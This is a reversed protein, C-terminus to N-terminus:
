LELIYMSDNEYVIHGTMKKKPPSYTIIRSGQYNPKWETKEGNEILKYSVLYNVGRKKILRQADRNDDFVDMILNLENEVHDFGKSDVYRYCEYYVQRESLASTYCTIQGKPGLVKNSLLVADEPLNQKAWLLGELEGKTLYDASPSVSYEKQGIINNIGNYSIKIFGFPSFAVFLFSLAVVCKLVFSKRILDLLDCDNYSVVAGFYGFLIAIQFFYAQAMGFQNFFMGCLFGCLMVTLLIKEEDSIRKNRKVGMYLLTWILPAILFVYTLFVIGYVFPTLRLYDLLLYYIKQFVMSHLLSGYMSLEFTNRTNEVSSGSTLIFLAAGFFFLFGIALLISKKVEKKKFLLFLCGLGLGPMVFCSLTAKLGIAIFLALFCTIYLSYNVRSDDYIRLFYYMTLLSFAFAETQGVYFYIHYNYFIDTILEFGSLFLVIFVLFYLNRKNKIIYDGLVYIAGIFLTLHILYSYLFCLNFLEIGTLYHLFAIGVCSFYHYQFSQGLLSLDNLPLGKSVIVCNRLWYVDDPDTQLIVKDTPALNAGEFGFLSIAFCVIMFISLVKLDNDVVKGDFSHYKYLYLASLASVLIAPIFVYQNVHLFMCILYVLISLGYGLAYSSFYFKTSNGYDHNIISNVCVGPLLIFFVQSFVFMVCDQWNARGVITAIIAFLVFVVVISFNGIRKM